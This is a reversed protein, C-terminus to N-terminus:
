EPSPTPPWNWCGIWKPHALLDELDYMGALPVYPARVVAEGRDGMFPPSFATLSVIWPGIEEGTKKDFERDMVYNIIAPWVRAPRSPGVNRRREDDPFYLVSAGVYPKM